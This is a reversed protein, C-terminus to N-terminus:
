RPQAANKGHALDLDTRIWRTRHWNPPALFLTAVVTFGFLTYVLTFVWSPAAVFLMRRALEGLFSSESVHEGAARRLEREWVTLPCPIRLWSEIVVIGIAALHIVRFWANRVWAHRMLAGAIIAIEGLVVFGVYGLHIWVLVDACVSQWRM